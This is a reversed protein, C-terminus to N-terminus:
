KSHFCTKEAPAPVVGIIRGKRLLVDLIPELATPEMGFHGALERLSLRGHKELLELVETLV